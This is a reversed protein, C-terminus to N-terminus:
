RVCNMQKQWRCFGFRLCCHCFSLPSNVADASKEYAVLYATVCGAKCAIGGRTPHPVNLEESPCPPCTLPPPLKSTAHAHARGRMMAMQNQACDLSNPTSIQVGRARAARAPSTGCIGLHHLDIPPEDAQTGCWSSPLSM